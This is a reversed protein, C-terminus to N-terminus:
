QWTAMIAELSYRKGDVEATQATKVKAESKKLVVNPV